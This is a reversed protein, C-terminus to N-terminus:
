EVPLEYDSATCPARNRLCHPLAALVGFAAKVLIGLAGPTEKLSKGIGITGTADTVDGREETSRERLLVKSVVLFPMRYLDELPAYKLQTIWANRAHYYLSRQGMRVGFPNKHYTVVEPYQLVRYGLNLLRCTLDRENGYIFLYEDYGGAERLASARALSGCGRFTSMYRERNVAPSNVYSDPMGPEVVKTSVIATTAPERQMRAVTKELWDEPLEIDDDLIAVLPTTASAFGINFTECAGYKSHPMRVLHVDPFEAGIMEGTGDSSANDVVVIAAFPRRQRRLSLLNARLVDKKNWTCIVATAAWAPDSAAASSEASMRGAGARVAAGAGWLADLLDGVAGEYAALQEAAIEAFGEANEVKPDECNVIRGRDVAKTKGVLDHYALQSQFCEIAAQKKPWYRTTEILLNVRNQCNVGYLLLRRGKAWGKFALERWAAVLAHSLARHDPHFEEPAPGYVVEPAFEELERALREALDAVGALGGDPLGLFRYDRIGLVAGAAKSEAIRVRAIDSELKKPDGAAGDSAIVVRAADGREAHCALVGGCGFVEDDAHPAIVLARRPLTTPDLLPPYLAKM